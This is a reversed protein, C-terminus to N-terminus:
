WKPRSRDLAGTGFRLRPRALYLGPEARRYRAIVRCFSLQSQDRPAPAKSMLDLWIGGLEDLSVTIVRPQRM